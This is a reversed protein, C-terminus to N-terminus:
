AMLHALEAVIGMELHHYSASPHKSTTQLPGAVSSQWM